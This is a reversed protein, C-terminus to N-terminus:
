QQNNLSFPELGTLLITHEDNFCRGWLDSHM